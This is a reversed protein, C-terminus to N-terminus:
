SYADNADQPRNISASAQENLHVDCHSWPHTADRKPGLLVVRSYRHCRGALSRTQVM